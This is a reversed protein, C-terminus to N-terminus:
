IKYLFHKITKGRIDEPQESLCVIKFTALLRYSSSATAALIAEIGRPMCEVYLEKGRFLEM